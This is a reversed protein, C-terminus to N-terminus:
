AADPTVSVITARYSTYTACYVVCAYAALLPFTFFGQWMPALRLMDFVLSFGLQLALACGFLAAGFLAFASKNRWVTIISFFIAKAPSLDHWVILAPTFWFVTNVLTYGLVAVLMAQTVSASMFTKEDVGSGRLIKLLTGDDVWLTLSFVAMLALFYLAGLVLLPRAARGERARFGAFLLGPTVLTKNEVARCAILFGASLGQIFVGYLVPGIWPLMALLLLAFLFLIFLSMLPFPQQKFLAFAERIWQWGAAPPLSRAQM